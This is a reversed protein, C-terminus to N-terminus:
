SVEKRDELAKAMTAQDLTDPNYYMPLGQALRSIKVINLQNKRTLIEKIYAITAEGAFGPKFFVILELEGCRSLVDKIRRDLLDGITTDEAFINDLPSILNNLVHYYGKYVQSKEITIVDTPKEVLCIQNAKRSKSKCIECLNIASDSAFFGCNSCIKVESRVSTLASQFEGFKDAEMQLLDLAMKLSGRYGIGPLLRFKEALDEIPKPLM